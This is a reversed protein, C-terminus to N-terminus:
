GERERSWKGIFARFECLGEVCIFFVELHKAMWVEMVGYFVELPIFKYM